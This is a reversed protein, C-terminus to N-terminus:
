LLSITAQRLTPPLNGNQMSENFMKLSIPALQVSFTKYFEAPLGDPGPCKGSQTLMLASSLEGISFPEDLRSSTASDISPIELSYFFGDYKEEDAVCESTYLKAYFDRFYNNIVQPDITTGDTSSIQTIHQSSSAQRLQHALLKSPKDGLDSSCM